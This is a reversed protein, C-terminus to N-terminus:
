ATRTLNADDRGIRMGTCTGTGIVGIYTEVTLFTLENQGDPGFELPAGHGNLM